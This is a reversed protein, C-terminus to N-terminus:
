RSAALRREAARTIERVGEDDSPWCGVREIWALATQGSTTVRRLLAAHEPQTQRKIRSMIEDPSEDTTTKTAEAGTSM